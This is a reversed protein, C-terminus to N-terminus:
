KRKHILTAFNCFCIQRSSIVRAGKINADLPPFTLWSLMFSLLKVFSFIHAPTPLSPGSAQIRLGSIFSSHNASGPPESTLAKLHTVPRPTKMRRWAAALLAVEASRCLQLMESERHRTLSIEQEQFSPQYLKMRNKELM